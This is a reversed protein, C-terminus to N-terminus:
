DRPSPSTYLLCTRTGRHKIPVNAASFEEPFEGGIGVGLVLRGGSVIDLTLAMKGLVTPHYFPALLVSSVLKISKTSGAATALVPLAASSPGPPNTRMFHEGTGLFSYGLGELWKSEATTEELGLSLVAGFHLDPTSM